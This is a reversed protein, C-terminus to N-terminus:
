YFEIDFQILVYMGSVVTRFSIEPNCDNLFFDRALKIWEFVVREAEQLEKLSMEHPLDNEKKIESELPLYKMCLDCVGAGETPTRCIHCFITTCEM